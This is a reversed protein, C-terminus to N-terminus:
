RTAESEAKARVDAVFVERQGPAIHREAAQEVYALVEAWTQARAERERQCMLCPREASCHHNLAADREALLVRISAAYVRDEDGPSVAMIAALGEIRERHDAFGQGDAHLVAEASTRWAACCECQGCARPFERPMTGEEDPKKWATPGIGIQDLLLRQHTQCMDPVTIIRPQQNVADM